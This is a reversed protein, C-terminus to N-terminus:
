PDVFAKLQRSVSPHRLKRLAKCEIQRIRERVVNFEEGAEELTMSDGYFGYRKEIVKRERPKLYKGLVASLTDRQEQLFLWDDPLPYEDREERLLGVPIERGFWGYSLVFEMNKRESEAKKLLSKTGALSRKLATSKSGKLKEKFDKLKVATKERYAAYEKKLAELERSDSSRAADREAKMHWKQKLAEKARSDEENAKRRAEALERKMRATDYGVDFLKSRLAAIEAAQQEVTTQWHKDPTKLRGSRAKIDAKKDKYGM